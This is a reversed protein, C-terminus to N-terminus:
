ATIKCVYNRQASNSCLKIVSSCFSLSVSLFSLDCLGAKTSSVFSELLVALPTTDVTFFIADVWRLAAARVARVPVLQSTVYTVSAPAHIYRLAPTYCTICHYLLLKTLQQVCREDSWVDSQQFFALIVPQQQVDRCGLVAVSTSRKM